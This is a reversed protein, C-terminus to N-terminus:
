REALRRAEDYLVQLRATLTATLEDMEARTARGETPTPPQIPEGFVAVIRRPFIFKSGIPMARDSGGLGVPVIPVHSRCAVFAPGAFVEDVTTGVQRRGEPFMVLLQGHSVVDMCFRLSKRDIEGRRVPFAGMATLFWDTFRGLFISDKAMWRVHRRSAAAPLVFDLNSRHVPCILAAGEAPLNELGRVEFRCYLRLLVRVANILVGYIVRHVARPAVAPPTPLPDTRM